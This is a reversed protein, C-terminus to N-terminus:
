LFFLKLPPCITPALSELQSEIDKLYNPDLNINVLSFLLNVIFMRTREVEVEM